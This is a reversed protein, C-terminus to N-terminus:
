IEECHAKLDDYTVMVSDKIYQNFVACWGNGVYKISVVDDRKLSYDGVNWVCYKVRYHGHFENDFKKM